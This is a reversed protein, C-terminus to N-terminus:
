LENGLEHSGHRFETKGGNMTGSQLLVFSVERGGLM